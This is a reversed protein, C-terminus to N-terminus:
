AAQRSYLGADACARLIEAQKHLRRAEEHHAHRQEEDADRELTEAEEVLLDIEQLRYHRDSEWLVIANKPYGVDVVRGLDDILRIHDMTSRFADGRGARWYADIRAYNLSEKVNKLPQDHVDLSVFVDKSSLSPQQHQDQTIVLEVGHIEIAKVYTKILSQLLKIALAETACPLGIRQKAELSAQVITLDIRQKAQRISNDLNLCM